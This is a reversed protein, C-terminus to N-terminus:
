PVARFDVHEYGASAAPKKTDVREAVHSVLQMARHIQHPTFFAEVSGNLHRIGIKSALQAWSLDDTLHWAAAQASAQDIEGRGLLECVAAVQPDDSVSDIPKIEYAVRPNPDKKGHELCVTAIKVKRAKEPPVSFVGGGGGFGGGGRGGGGGGFGGGGGGGGFSQNGGGGGFGGQGGGGLGGGGRGGGGFGGQALVPVGAFAAPMRISLPRQTNNKVIVTAQKADRPILRVEIEGQDIAAFLEVEDAQAPPQAAWVSGAAVLCLAGATGALITQTIKHM